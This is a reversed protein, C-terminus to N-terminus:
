VIDFCKSIKLPSKAIDSIVLNLNHATCHVYSANPVIDSIRKQVGSFVGSMVTAGDYGQGCCKKINLNCKNLVDYIVNVHDEAGHKTLKNFRLFSEKIDFTHEDYNIAVYRFIFSVQDLKTIDQTCDMIITFCHANRIKECLVKM